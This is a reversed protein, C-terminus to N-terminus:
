LVEIRESKEEDIVECKNKNRKRHISGFFIYYVPITLFIVWLPHWMGLTIGLTIYTALVAIPNAKFIFNKSLIDPIILISFVVVWTPHWVGTTFGITLFAITALFPTAAIIKGRIGM